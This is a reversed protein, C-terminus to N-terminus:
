PRWNTRNLLQDADFAFSFDYAREIPINETIATVQRILALDNRQTEADVAGNRTFTGILDDYVRTALSREIGSFKVIAAISGSRDERFRRMGKLTAKIFSTVLKPQEKIVRDSTALIGWSNKVENGYYFLETMGADLGAYRQEASLVAADAAGSLLSTLQNNTGADLYIVDKNGDLGHKALIQKLMFTAIAAIGTTAIKKGKLERPTSITPRSLIWQHVRDNLAFIVKLPASAKGLAILGSAGAATFQISGAMLAQVSPVPEIFVMKLDLGEEQMYGREQAIPYVVNQFTKTPIALTVADLAFAKATILTYAFILAVEFIKRWRFVSRGPATQEQNSTALRKM